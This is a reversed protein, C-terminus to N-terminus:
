NVKYSLFKIKFWDCVACLAAVFLIVFAPVTPMYYRMATTGTAFFMYFLAPLIFWLGLILASRKSIKGIYLVGLLILIFIILFAPIALWSYNAARSLLHFFNGFSWMPEKTIGPAAWGPVYYQKQYGFSVPSGFFLANYVFQPLFGLIAFLGYFFLKKYKKDLEYLFIILVATLVIVINSIRIMASYGALFGVLSYFFLGVKKREAILMLFLILLAFFAAPQDAMAALWSMNFFNIDNWAGTKFQPGYNRLVYFIFPFILFLFGSFIAPAIKKFILFSSWIILIMGISFLIFGNFLVLPFFIDSFSKGFIFIFPVIMLPFGLTRELKQFNFDYVMESVQYYNIDDGEHIASFYNSYGGHEVGSINSIIYQKLHPLHPMLLLLFIKLAILVIASIILIKRTKKDQM